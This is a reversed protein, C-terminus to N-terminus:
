KKSPQSPCGLGNLIKQLIGHPGIIIHKTTWPFLFSWNHYWFVYVGSFWHSFGKFHKFWTYTLNWMLVIQKWQVLLETLWAFDSVLWALLQPCIFIAKVYSLRMLNPNAHQLLYLIYPVVYRLLVHYHNFCFRFIESTMYTGKLIEFMVEFFFDRVHIYWIYDFLPRTTFFYPVLELYILPLLSYQCRSFIMCPMSPYTILLISLLKRLLLGPFFSSNLQVCNYM